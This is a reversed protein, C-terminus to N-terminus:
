ELGLEKVVAELPIGKEKRKLSERLEAEVEPRLELGYDPVIVEQVIDKILEKLEGVTMDGVKKDVTKKVLKRLTTQM